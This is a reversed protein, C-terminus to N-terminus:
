FQLRFRTNLAELSVNQDNPDFSWFAFNRLIQALITALNRLIQALNLALNHM